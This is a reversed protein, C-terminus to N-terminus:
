RYAFSELARTPVPKPGTKKEPVGSSNLMELHRTAEMLIGPNSLALRFLGSMKLCNAPTMTDVVYRM